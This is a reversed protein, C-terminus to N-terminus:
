PTPFGELPGQVGFLAMGVASAACAGCCRGYWDQREDRGPYLTVFVAYTEADTGCQCCWRPEEIVDVDQLHASCWSQLASFCDLCLRRRERMSVTGSVIAPYATRQPGRYRAGHQDCPFLAV